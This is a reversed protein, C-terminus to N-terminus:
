RRMTEINKLAYNQTRETDDHSLHEGEGYAKVDQHKKIRNILDLDECGWGSYGSYLGNVRECITRPLTIIGYGPRYEGNKSERVTTLYEVGNPNPLHKKSAWRMMTKKSILVDADCLIIREGRSLSIGLNLTRAKNFTDLYNHIRIHKINRSTTQQPEAHISCTMLEVIVIESFNDSASHYEVVTNLSPKNMSAIVLSSHMTKKMGKHNTRIIGPPM